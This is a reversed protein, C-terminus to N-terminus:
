HQFVLFCEFFRFWAVGYDVSLTGFPLAPVVQIVFDVVPNYFCLVLHFIYFLLVPSEQPMAPKPDSTVTTAKAQTVATTCTQDRVWSSECTAPEPLVCIFVYIFIFSLILLEETVCCILSGACTQISCAHGFFFFFFDM